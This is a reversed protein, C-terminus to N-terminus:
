RHNAQLPTGEKAWKQQARRSHCHSTPFPRPPTFLESIEFEEGHVDHKDAIFQGWGRRTANPGENRRHGRGQGADMVFDGHNTNIRLVEAPLNWANSHHWNGPDPRSEPVPQFREIAVVVPLSMSDMFGKAKEVALMRDINDFPGIVFPEEQFRNGLDSVYHAGMPWQEAM